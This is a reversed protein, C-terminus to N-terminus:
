CPKKLSKLFLLAVMQGMGFGLINILHADKLFEGRNRLQLMCNGMESLVREIKTDKWTTPLMTYISHGVPPPEKISGSDQLAAM